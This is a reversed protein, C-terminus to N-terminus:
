LQTHMCCAQPPTCRKEHWKENSSEHACKVAHSIGNGFHNFGWRTHWMVCHPQCLVVFILAVVVVILSEYARSLWAASISAKHGTKRKTKANVVTSLLTLLSSSLTWPICTTGSAFPVNNGHFWWDFECMRRMRMHLMRKENRFACCYCCCCYCCCCINFIIHRQPVRDVANLQKANKNRQIRQFANIQKENKSEAQIRRETHGKAHACSVHQLSGIRMNVFMCEYITPVRMLRSGSTTSILLWHSWRGLTCLCVCVWICICIDEYISVFFYRCAGKCDGTRGETRGNTRRDKTTNM